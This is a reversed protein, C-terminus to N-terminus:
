TSIRAGHFGDGDNRSLRVANVQTVNGFRLQGILWVRVDAFNGRFTGHLDPHKLDAHVGRVALDVLGQVAVRGWTRLM